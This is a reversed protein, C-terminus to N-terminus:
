TKRSFMLYTCDITITKDLNLNLTTTITRIKKRKFIFKPQRNQAQENVSNLLCRHLARESVGGFVGSFINM